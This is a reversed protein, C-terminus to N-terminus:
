PSAVLALLAALASRTTWSRLRDEATAVTAQRAGCDLAAPMWAKPPMTEVYTTGVSSSNAM